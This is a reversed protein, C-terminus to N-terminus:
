KLKESDNGNVVASSRKARNSGHANRVVRQTNDWKGGIFRVPGSLHCPARSKLKAPRNPSMSPPTTTSKVVSHSNYASHLSNTAHAYNAPHKERSRHLSLCWQCLYLVQLERTSRLSPPFGFVRSSSGGKPGLRAMKPNRGSGFFPESRSTPESGSASVLETPFSPNWIRVIQGLKPGPLNPDGRSFRFGTHQFGYPLPFLYFRVSVFHLRTSACSSM